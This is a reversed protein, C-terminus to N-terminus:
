QININNMANVTEEIVKDCFNKHVYIRGSIKIEVCAILICFAISLVSLYIISIKKNNKYFEKLLNLMVGGVIFNDKTM